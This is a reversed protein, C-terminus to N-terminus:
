LLYYAERTHVLLTNQWTLNQLHRLSFCLEPIMGLKLLHSLSVGQVCCLDVTNKLRHNMSDQSDTSHSTGTFYGTFASRSDNPKIRTYKEGHLDMLDVFWFLHSFQPAQSMAQRDQVTCLLLSHPFFAPLRGWLLLANTWIFFSMEGLHVWGSLMMTILYITWSRARVTNAAKYHFNSTVM